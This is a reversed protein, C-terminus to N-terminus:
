SRLIGNWNWSQIVDITITTNGSPRLEVDHTAAALEKADFPLVSVQRPKNM